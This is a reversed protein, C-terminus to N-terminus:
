VMRDKEEVTTMFGAPGMGMSSRCFEGLWHDISFTRLYNGRANKLITIQSRGYIKGIEYLKRMLNLVLGRANEEEEM